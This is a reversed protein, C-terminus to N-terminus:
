WVPPVVYYCFGPVTARCAIICLFGINRAAAGQQWGSMIETACAPIVQKGTFTYRLKNRQAIVKIVAKERIRPVLGDSELLPLSALMKARFM